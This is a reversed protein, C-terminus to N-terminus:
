ILFFPFITVETTGPFGWDLYSKWCYVLVNQSLSELYIMTWICTCMHSYIDIFIQLFPSTNTTALVFSLYANPFCPQCQALFTCQALWTEEHRQLSQGCPVSNRDRFKNNFNNTPEEPTYAADRANCSACPCRVDDSPLASARYEYHSRGEWECTVFAPFPWVTIRGSLM